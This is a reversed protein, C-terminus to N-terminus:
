IERDITMKNQVGVPVNGVAVTGLAHNAVRPVLTNLIKLFLCIEL